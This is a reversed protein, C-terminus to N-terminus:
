SKRKFIKQAKQPNFNCFIKKDSSLENSLTNVNALSQNIDEKYDFM